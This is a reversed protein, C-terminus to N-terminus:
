YIQSCHRGTANEQPEVTAILQDESRAILLKAEITMIMTIMLLWWDDQDDIVLEDIIM